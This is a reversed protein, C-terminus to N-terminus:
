LDLLHKDTAVSSSLLPYKIPGNMEGGKERNRVLGMPMAVLFYEPFFRNIKSRDAGREPGLELTLPRM